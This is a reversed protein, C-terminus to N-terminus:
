ASRRCGVGRARGGIGSVATAATRPDALNGVLSEARDDTAAVLDLVRVAVGGDLLRRVIRSGIFGSGGTVLVRM